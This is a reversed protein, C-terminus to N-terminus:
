RLILIETWFQIVKTMQLNWNRYHQLRCLEVALICYKLLLNCLFIIIYFNLLSQNHVIVVTSTVTAQEIDLAKLGTLGHSFEDSWGSIQIM